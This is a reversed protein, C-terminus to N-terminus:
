VFTKSVACACVCIRQGGGAWFQVWWWYGAVVGYLRCSRDGLLTQGCDELGAEAVLPPAM